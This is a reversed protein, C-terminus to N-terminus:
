IHSCSKVPVSSYAAAQLSGSVEPTLFANRDVHGQDRPRFSTLHSASWATLATMPSSLPQLTNM